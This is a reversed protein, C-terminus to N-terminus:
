ATVMGAREAGYDSNIEVILIKQGSSATINGGDWFAWQGTKPAWGDAICIDMPKPVTMDEGVKYVYTNGEDPGPAVKISYGGLSDPTALIVLQDMVPIQANLNLDMLAAEFNKEFVELAQSNAYRCYDLLLSRPLDEKTFDLSAGAIDQLRKMGRNIYGTVTKDTKEDQWTIHLYDKVDPLLTEAIEAM